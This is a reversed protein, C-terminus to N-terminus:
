SFNLSFYIIFILLNFIYFIFFEFLKTKLFIIKKNNKIELKFFFNSLFYIKVEYRLIDELLDERMKLFDKM